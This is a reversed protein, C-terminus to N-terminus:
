KLWEKEAGRKESKNEKTIKRETKDKEIKRKEIKVRETRWKKLRRGKWREKKLREKKRRVGNEKKDEIRRKLDRGMENDIKKLIHSNQGEKKLWKELKKKSKAEGVNRSLKGRIRSRNANHIKERKDIKRDGYTHIKKGRHIM